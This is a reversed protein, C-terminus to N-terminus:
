ADFLLKRATNCDFKIQDKLQDVSDFKQEDRIKKIFEIQIKKGYINSSFDLLHVEPVRVDSAIKSVTPRVGINMVGFHFKDDLAVKVAYVGNPPIIMDSYHINATPFGLKSGLQRGKVVRGFLQFNRGLSAKAQSLDGQSVFQRIHRSSYKAGVPDCDLTCVTVKINRSTLYEPINNSNGKAEKGIRADAGIILHKVNLAQILIQDCFQQWSINSVETTFNLLFLEKIGLCSLLNIRQYLSTIQPINNARKLRVSPHPYFSLLGPTLNDLNAVKVVENVVKQHGLHLGDFSGLTIVRGDSKPLKSKNYLIRNLNM